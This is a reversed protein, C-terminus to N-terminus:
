LSYTFIINAVGAGSGAVAASGIRLQATTSNTTDVIGYANVAGGGSTLNGQGIGNVVTAGSVPLSFTFVTDATATLTLQVAITVTILNGNRVYYAANLTSSSINTTNTLTPTYSGSASAIKEVVGTSTNRTLIDYTGSSTVPSTLMSRNLPLLIADLLWDTISTNANASLTFTTGVINTITATGGVLYPSNVVDGISWNWTAGGVTVLNSGIVFVASTNYHLKGATECRYYEGIDSPLIIENKSFILPFDTQKPVLYPYGGVAQVLNRNYFAGTKKLVYSQKLKSFSWDKIGDSYKIEGDQFFGVVFPLEPFTYTGTNSSSFYNNEFVLEKAYDIYAIYKASNPSNILNNKIYVDKTTGSLNGCFIMAYDLIGSSSGTQNNMFTLNNVNCSYNSGSVSTVGFTWPANPLGTFYNSIGSFDSVEFYNGSVILSGVGSLAIAGKTNGELENGSIIGGFGGATNPLIDAVIACGGLQQFACNTISQLTPQYTVHKYQIGNGKTGTNFGKCRNFSNLFINNNLESHLTILGNEVAYSGGTILLDEFTTRICENMYIGSYSKYEPSGSPRALYVAFNSLNIYQSINVTNSNISMPSKAIDDRQYLIGSNDGIGSIEFGFECPAGSGIYPYINLQDTTHYLKSFKINRVGTSIAANVANQLATTSDFLGAPIYNQTQNTIVNKDYGVAGFWEPRIFSFERKFYEAGLQFYIVGDVTPTGTVKSLTMEEGTYQDLIGYLVDGKRQALTLSENSKIFKKVVDTDNAPTFGLAAVINSYTLAVSGNGIINGFKDVPVFQATGGAVASALNTTGEQVILYCRFVANDAINQETVFPQTPLATTADIFSNYVTQGPQIRSLGSQFLNIRQITWKNSPTPTSVGAVDYINPNINQTDALQTGNQFRYAFTLATQSPITLKHPSLYDAANIGMGFIDGVSKNIQLNAGNASYINGSENLFGIARMFDHLQNGFAVIPAKIENTVNITTNNSHVVNGVIALTRRQADTFPSASSIVTGNIDLAVYTSNATALYAPTLGTAGAYNIIKVVPQALDSFDTVVYYGAAINFKTPDANISLQLGQLFGTPLNLKKNLSDQVAATKAIYTSPIKGQTGDTGFTGIYTPTTITQLANNKIGYDFEQEQGTSTQGYGAISLLLLLFLIKKM